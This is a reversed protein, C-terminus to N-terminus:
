PGLEPYQPGDIIITLLHDQQAKARARLENLQEICIRLTAIHMELPIRAGDPMLPRNAPERLASLDKSLRELQSVIKKVYEVATSRHKEVQSLLIPHGAFRALKAQGRGIHM